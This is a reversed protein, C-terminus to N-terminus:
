QKERPNKNNSNEQYNQTWENVQETFNFKELIRTKKCLEM